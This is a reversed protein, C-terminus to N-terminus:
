SSRSTMPGNLEFIEVHRRRREGAILRLTEGRREVHIPIALWARAAFDGDLQTRDLVSAFLANAIPIPDAIEFAAM